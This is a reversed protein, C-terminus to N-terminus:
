QWVGTKDVYKNKAFFADQAMDPDCINLITTGFLSTVLAKNKESNYVGNESM